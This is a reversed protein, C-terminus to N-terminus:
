LITYSGFLLGQKSVYSTDISENCIDTVNTNDLQLSWFKITGGNSIRFALAINTLTFKLQYNMLLEGGALFIGWRANTFECNSLAYVTTSSNAQICRSMGNFLVNDLKLFSTEAVLIIKHNYLDPQTDKETGIKIDKFCVNAGNQLTFMAYDATLTDNYNVKIFSSSTGQGEIILNLNPNNIIIPSSLTFTEASVSIKVTGSSWKDSLYSIASGIDTYDGTGNSKITIITGDPLFNPDQGGGGESEGFVPLYEGQKDLVFAM